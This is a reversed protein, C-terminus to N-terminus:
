ESTADIVKLDLREKLSRLKHQLSNILSQKDRSAVDYLQQTRGIIEQTAEDISLDENIVTIGVARAIRELLSTYQECVCARVCVCV